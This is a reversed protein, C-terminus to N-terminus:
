PNEEAHPRLGVGPDDGARPGAGAKSYRHLFFLLSAVLAMSIMAAGLPVSPDETIFKPYYSVAVVQIANTFFHALVSVWLSGSYWYVAGLLIGLMMRTLFGQFQMHFASFFIATLVIGAWPSKSLRILIPQLAGRFCAEECIAPLVAILFINALTGATSDTKLFAIIERDASKERNIMWDPLHIARNVQGLWGDFPLSLFLLLVALLYFEFKSPNRFGLWDMSNGKSVFHAFFVAPLLFTVLTSVAQLFKLLVLTKPNAFDVGAQGPAVAGSSLLVISIFLNALIFGGALLLLFWGLQGRASAVRLDQNM